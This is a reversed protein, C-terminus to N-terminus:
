IYLGKCTEPFSPVKKAMDSSPMPQPGRAGGKSMDQKGAKREEGWGEECEVEKRYGAGEKCFYSVRDRSQANWHRIRPM